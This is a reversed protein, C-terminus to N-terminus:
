KRVYIESTLTFERGRNAQSTIKLTVKSTKSTTKDVVISVRLSDIGSVIENTNKCLTNKVPSINKKLIYQTGNIKITDGSIIDGSKIGGPITIDGPNRRIERTIDSIARQVVTQNDINDVQSNFSKYGFSLISFGMMMVIALLALVIILEILTFGKRNNIITRVKREM